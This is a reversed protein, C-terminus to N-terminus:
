NGTPNNWYDKFQGQQGKAYSGKMSSKKTGDCCSKEVPRDSCQVCRDESSIKKAHRGIM